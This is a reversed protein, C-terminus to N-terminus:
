YRYLANVKKHNEDPMNEEEMIYITGGKEFVKIAILNLLSINNETLEDQINVVQSNNDYEGFIEAGNQVFLSDIRGEIASKIIMNVDATAKGTGIYESYLNLKEERDKSFYPELLNWAEEHLQNIDKDEPNGSIHEDHLNQYTNVEKYVPFQFDQCAVVLPPKQDDHLMTMIGDNVARFYRKMENLEEAKGEGAGHYMGSKNDGQQGSRFQLNKQEFDYGVVDELRSPVEEPTIVETMTYRTGEYFKVEDNKLTLLYFLGNGNFLPMLSKLYFEDSVYNFEEFHIPLTYQKFTNESLFIALGDSQHRWFENDNVLEDVPKVMEEIEKDSLGQKELKVKVQKLQTKLKMKDRGELTESGARHTPIYISICSASQKNALKLVEQKTIIAM